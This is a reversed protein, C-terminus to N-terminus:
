LNITFFNNKNISLDKFYEKLKGRYSSIKDEIDIKLFSINSCAEPAHNVFDLDLKKLEKDYINNTLEIEYFPALDRLLGYVSLCDGRNPTLEMNFIEDEIKHEHGLQFLRISIEDISPKSPIHHILHKYAVKM